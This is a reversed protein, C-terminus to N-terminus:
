SQLWKRTQDIRPLIFNRTVYVSTCLADLVRIITLFCILFTALCQLHLQPVLVRRQRESYYKPLFLYWTGRLLSQSSLSKICASMTLVIWVYTLNFDNVNVNSCRDHPSCSISAVKTGSSSGSQRCCRLLSLLYVCAHLAKCTLGSIRSTHTRLTNQAPPPMPLTASFIIAQIPSAEEKKQISVYRILLLLTTSTVRFSARSPSTKSSAAGWTPGQGLRSGPEMKPM